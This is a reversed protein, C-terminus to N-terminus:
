VQSVALLIEADLGGAKMEQTRALVVVIIWWVTDTSSIGELYFVAYCHLVGVVLESVTM